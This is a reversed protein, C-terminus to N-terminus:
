FADPGYGDTSASFTFQGVDFSASQGVGFRSRPTVSITTPPIPPPADEGMMLSGAFPIM